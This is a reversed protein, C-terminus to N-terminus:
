DKFQQLFGTLESIYLEQDQFYALVHDTEKFTVFTKNTHPIADYLEVGMDYPCVQDTKSHMIMTPVSSKSILDTISVAEFKFGYIVKNAVSGMNTLINTLAKNGVQDAMYWKIEDKMSSFPSDMIAFDVKDGSAVSGIYAGVTSAGMSQGFLGLRSEPLLTEQVYDLVDDLDDKEYLGFTVTKATNEGHARQDYLVVDYNMDLFLEALPYMSQRSAEHWHVLIMTNRTPNNPSKIHTIPITHGYRSQITAEVLQSQYTTEFTLPNYNVDELFMNNINITHEQTMKSPMYAISLSVLSISIIILILLVSCVRKILKIIMIGGKYPHVYMM